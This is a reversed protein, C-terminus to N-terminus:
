ISISILANQEQHERVERSLVYMMSTEINRSRCVYLRQALDFDYTQCTYVCHMMRDFTRRLAIELIQQILAELKPIQINIRTICVRAGSSRAECVSKHFILSAQRRTRNTQRGLADRYKRVKILFNHVRAQLFCSQQQSDNLYFTKDSLFSPNREVMKRITNM